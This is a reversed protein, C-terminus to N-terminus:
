NRMKKLQCVNDLCVAETNVSVNPCSGVQEAPAAKLLRSAGIGNIALVCSQDAFSVKVAKCQQHNICTLHQKIIQYSNTQEFPITHNPAAHVKQEQREVSDAHKFHEQELYARNKEENNKLQYGIVSIVLLFGILTGIIIVLWKLM